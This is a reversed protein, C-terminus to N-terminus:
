RECAVTPRCLSGGHKGRVGIEPAVDTEEPVAGVLRRPEEREERHADDAAQHKRQLGHEGVLVLPALALTGEM